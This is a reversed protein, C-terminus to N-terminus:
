WIYEVASIKHKHNIDHNYKLHSQAGHDYQTHFISVYHYCKINIMFSIYEFYSMRCTRKVM